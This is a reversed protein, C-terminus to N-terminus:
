FTLGFKMTYSQVSPSVGVELGTCLHAGGFVFGILAQHRYINYRPFVFLQSKTPDNKDTTSSLHSSANVYLFKYGIYPTIVVMGGLTFPKSILLNLGADLMVMDGTGLITGVFGSISFDPIYKFGEIFAWKVDMALGWMGSQFVHTIIGGLQISFPLGKEFHIQLTKAFNPANSAGKKWYTTNNNIHTFGINWSVDFGYSGLTNAPGLFKPSIVEGLEAAYSTFGTVDQTLKGKDLTAFSSLTPDMDDAWVVGQVLLMALIFFVLKKM